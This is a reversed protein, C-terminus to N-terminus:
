DYVRLFYYGPSLSDATLGVAVTDQGGGAPSQSYQLWYATYPGVGGSVSITASGDDRCSSDSSTLQVQLPNQAFATFGFFFLLLTLRISKSKRLIIQLSKKM